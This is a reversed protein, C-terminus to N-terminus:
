HELVLPDLVPHRCKRCPEVRQQDPQGAEAAVGHRDQLEVPASDLFREHDRALEVPHLRLRTEVRGVGGRALPHLLRLTPALRLQL